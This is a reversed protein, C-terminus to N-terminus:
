NCYGMHMLFHMEKKNENPVVTTKLLINGNTLFFKKKNVYHQDKIFSELSNFFYKLFFVFAWVYVCEWAYSDKKKTTSASDCIM